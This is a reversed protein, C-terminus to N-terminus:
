DSEAAQKASKKEKEKAQLTTKLSSEEEELKEIMEYEKLKM